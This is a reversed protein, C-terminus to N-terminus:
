TPALDTLLDPVPEQHLGRRAVAALAPSQRGRSQHRFPEAGRGRRWPWASRIRSRRSARSHLRIPLAAPHLRRRRLEAGDPIAPRCERRASIGTTSSPSSSIARANAVAITALSGFAMLQEGDGTVVLVADEEAAGAGAGSRCSRRRGHYAGFITTTTAIERLTSTM